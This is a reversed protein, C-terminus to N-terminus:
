MSMRLLDNNSLRSEGLRFEDHSVISAFIFGLDEFVDQVHMPDKKKSANFGLSDHYLVYFRGEDSVHWMDGYKGRSRISLDGGALVKVKLTPFKSAINMIEIESVEKTKFGKMILKHAKQYVRVEKKSKGYKLSRLNLRRM